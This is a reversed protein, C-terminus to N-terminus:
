NKGGTVLFSEFFTSAPDDKPDLNPGEASLYYVKGEARYVRVVRTNPGVQFEWQRGRMDRADLRIPTETRLQGGGQTLAKRVTAFWADEDGARAPNPDDGSGVVFVVETPFAKYSAKYCTLKWGDLPRLNDAPIPKGPMRVTYDGGPPRFPKLDKGPGLAQRVGDVMEKKLFYLSLGAFYALGVLILVGKVRTAPSWDITYVVALCLASVAVALAIPTALSLVPPQGLMLPAIVWLLPIAFPLLALGILVSVPLRAVPDAHPHGDASPHANPPTVPEATRRTRAPRHASHDPREGGPRDAGPRDLPDPRRRLRPRPAPLPPPSPPAVPMAEEVAVFSNSCRPCAVLLGVAEPAVRSAGRCSPCRVVKM